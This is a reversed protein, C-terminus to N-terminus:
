QDAKELYVAFESGEGPMSKVGIKGNNADVFQKILGLGIGTGGENNTGAGSIDKGTVKFLKEMKQPLIGIGNDKVHIVQYDEDISYYIEITGGHPTFKIANGILNQFIIKVHNLDALVNKDGDYNHILNIRKNKALFNSVSIIENITATINFTILHTKIGKQQDSAWVLMNNVMLNVLGVQQYFSNMMEKQEGESMDGSRICDMTQLLAAFPSRLDHSIISFLKDKTHNLQHLTEKQQSIEAKQSAIDANQKKLVKNIATKQRNNRIILVIFIVAIVTAINRIWFLRNNFSISQEKAKLENTLLVNDAQQQKLHLNNVEKNKESNFVSDSTNKYLKHYHYAQKFNGLAASSEALVSLARIQDAKSNVKDGMDLSRKANLIAQNYDGMAYYTQALGSLGFELEWNSAFKSGIAQQYYFLAKKYDKLHFYAEGERNLAMAILGNNGASKAVEAAKSLWAFSKEHQGMEDYSLGINFYAKSMNVSDKIEAFIDLAKKLNIIAVDAKNEAQYILGIMQYAGGTGPKYNTKNSIEMVKSSADLSLTYEGEVYYNRSINLWSVAEGVAFKQAHALELAQKAFALSSDSNNYLYGYSLQNLLNVSGTDAKYNQKSKARQLENLLASNETQAFAFFGLFLLPITCGYLRLFINDPM